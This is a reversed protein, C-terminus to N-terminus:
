ALARVIWFMGTVIGAVGVFAGARRGLALSRAHARQMVLAALMAFLTMALTVGIGFAALYGFGARLDTMLTVPVLAVVASTGALGHLFGVAAIGEHSHDRAAEGHAHAHTHGTGGPHLHLHAHGHERGSHLHMRRASVLAWAGLGVLMAGVLAEGFADWREPWRVGLLLLAGGSALMAISHGIGWRAGFRAALPISPRRSVFATVALMHDIELAHLFGIMGATLLLVLM